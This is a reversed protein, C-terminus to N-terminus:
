YIISNRFDVSVFHKVRYIGPPFTPHFNPDYWIHPTILVVIFETCPLYLQAHVTSILLEVYIRWNDAKKKTGIKLNCHYQDLHSPILYNQGM